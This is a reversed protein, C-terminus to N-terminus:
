RPSGRSPSAPVTRESLRTLCWDIAEEPTTFAPVAKPDRETEVLRDRLRRILRQVMGRHEPRDALNTMEQPDNEVDYLRVTRGRVPVVEEYGDDRERKGTRYILKWRPTRIMGEESHAYESLVDERAEASPDQFVKAFSRGQLTNGDPRPLAALDLITPFLDVFEVLSRTSSGSPIRGPMAMVLPCRVAGEFFSHKEFRGHQGLHYGNDSLYIILTRDALGAEHIADIVRGVNADLFSTSTYASAIIGQKDARTLDRFIRPIQGADEPGPEPVPMKAPDYLNRYEIPFWFPSHPERFGVELFFPEARYARIFEVARDAYFTSEMDAQRRPYPRHFGNLWISAPDKFPRWPPLVEIAPPLPSPPHQREYAQWAGRETVAVEFGHPLASNFHMKGFAATRYGLHRLHEALTPEDPGLVDALGMVGTARPYRGCLFSQRSPTCMPSNCYARDFRMGAAALRDINPTKALKNGYCGTVEWAHDDGVLLLINPKEDGPRSASAKAAPCLCFLVALAVMVIRTLLRM